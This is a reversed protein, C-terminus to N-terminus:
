QKPKRVHEIYRDFYPPICEGFNSYSQWHDPDAEHRYCMKSKPCDDRSCMTIDPM